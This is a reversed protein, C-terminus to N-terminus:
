ASFRKAFDAPMISVPQDKRAKLTQKDFVHLKGSRDALMLTFSDENRRIGEITEGSQTTVTITGVRPGRRRQQIDNPDQLKKLLADAPKTAADSLDPGLIGGRGSVEHCSACAAKGFFLTEGNKQNGSVMENIKGGAGSVSRLYSVIQWVQTIELKGFAPMKTGAIGNRINLFLEGDKAGHKFAGTSLAPGRESGAANGGHCAQCAQGYLRRGSVVATPDNALPNKENQPTHEQASAVALTLVSFLFVSRGM